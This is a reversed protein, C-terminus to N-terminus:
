AIRLGGLFETNVNKWSDPILGSCGCIQRLRHLHRRLNSVACWVSADCGSGPVPISYVTGSYEWLDWNGSHAVFVGSATITRALDKWIGGMEDFNYKM